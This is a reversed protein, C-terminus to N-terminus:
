GGNEPTGPFNDVAPSDGWGKEFTDPLRGSPNLDGFLAEAVATNGNQGPYWAQMLGRVGDIWKDMAVNGGSNMVVLVNPNLHRIRHLLETQDPPLEYSRDSGEHELSPNFGVSAVVLDAKAIQKAEESTFKNQEKGWTFQITSPGTLHRYEVVLDHAEGAAMK